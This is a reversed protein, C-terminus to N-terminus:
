ALDWRDIDDMVELVADIVAQWTAIGEAKDADSKEEADDWYRPYDLPEIGLEMLVAMPTNDEDTADSSFYCDEAADEATLIAKARARQARTLARAEDWIADRIATEFSM